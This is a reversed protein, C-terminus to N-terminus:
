ELDRRVMESWELENKQSCPIKPPRKQDTQNKSHVRGERFTQKCMEGTYM